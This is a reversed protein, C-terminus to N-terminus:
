DPLMWSEIMIFIRKQRQRLSLTFRFFSSAHRPVIRMTGSKAAIVLARHHRRKPEHSRMGGEVKPPKRLVSVGRM